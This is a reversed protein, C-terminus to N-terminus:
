IQAWERILNHYADTRIRQGNPMSRISGDVHTGFTQGSSYRNVLPPLVHLPLAASMFLPNTSLAQLIRRGVEAATPSDPTLQLNNKVQAGQHGATIRGDV